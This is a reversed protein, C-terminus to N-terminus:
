SSEDAKRGNSEKSRTAKQAGEARRWFKTTERQVLAELRHQQPKPLDPLFRPLGLDGPEGLWALEPKASELIAAACKMALHLAQLGDIGFM